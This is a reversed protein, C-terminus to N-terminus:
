SCLHMTPYRTRRTGPGTSGRVPPATTPSRRARKTRPGEGIEGLKHAGLTLGIAQSGFAILDATWYGQWREAPQIPEKSASTAQIGDMASLISRASRQKEDQALDDPLQRLELEFTDTEDAMAEDDSYDGLARAGMLQSVLCILQALFLYCVPCAAIPQSCLANILILASGLGAALRVVVEPIAVRSGVEDQARLYQRVQRGVFRALHSM